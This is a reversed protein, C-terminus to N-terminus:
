WALARLLAMRWLLEPASLNLTKGLQDKQTSPIAVPASSIADALGSLFRQSVSM